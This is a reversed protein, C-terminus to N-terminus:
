KTQNQKNTKLLKRIKELEKKTPNNAKHLIWENLKM